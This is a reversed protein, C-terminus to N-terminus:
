VRSSLSGSPSGPTTASTGWIAWIIPSASASSCSRACGRRVRHRRCGRCHSGAGARVGLCVRCHLGRVRPRRAPLRRRDDDVRLAERHRTVFWAAGRAAAGERRRGPLPVPRARHHRRPGPRGSRTCATAEVKVFAYEEEGPQWKALAQFDRRLPFQDIPWAAMWLWPRQDGGESPIGTLDYAARQMRNAAPFLTALDPYHVDGDPMSHELLLLGDTDQLVVRLCFGRERDREDALWLALLVGHSEV